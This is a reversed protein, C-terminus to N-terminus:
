KYYAREPIRLDIYDNPVQRTEELREKVALFAGVSQRAESATNFKVLYPQGAFRAHLENAVAPLALSSPRLKQATTQVIIEQIFAVTAAPLASKGPEIILGSQDAVMPLKMNAVSDKDRAELIARGTGDIVFTAETTRLALAAQSLQIHIVPRRGILPLAVKAVAIEPFDQRLDRAIATTDVTIKSRNMISSQISRQAARAYESEERFLLQNQSAVIIKPQTSLTLTYGLSGLLAFLALWSPLLRWQSWPLRRRESQGRGLPVDGRTRSSRYTFVGKSVQEPRQAPRIRPQPNM